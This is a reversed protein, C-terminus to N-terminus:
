KLLFTQGSVYDKKGKKFYRKKNKTKLALKDVKFDNSVKKHLHINKM